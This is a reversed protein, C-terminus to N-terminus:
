AKIIKPFGYMALVLPWLTAAVAFIGAYAFVYVAKATYPNEFQKLEDMLSHFDERHKERESDRESDGTDLPTKSQLFRVFVRAWLITLMFGFAFYIATWQFTSM